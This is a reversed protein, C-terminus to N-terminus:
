IDTIATGGLQIISDRSVGAGSPARGSRDMYVSDWPDQDYRPNRTTGANISRSVGKYTPIIRSPGGLYDTIIPAASGSSKAVRSVQKYSPTDRAIYQTYYDGVGLWPNASPAATNAHRVAANGADTRLEVLAERTINGEGQKLSKYQLVEKLAEHSPRIHNAVQNIGRYTNPAPPASKIIMAHDSASFDGETRTSALAKAVDASIIATKKAQAESRLVSEMNQDGVANQRAMLMQTLLVSNTKRTSSIDGDGHIEATAMDTRTNRRSQQGSKCIRGYKAIQLDSDLTTTRYEHTDRIMKGVLVAPSRAQGFQTGMRDDGAEEKEVCEVTSTDGFTPALTPTRGDITRSFVKLRGRLDTYARVKAEQVQGENWGGGTISATDDPDFRQLRSRAENQDRFKNLDPDTTTGRQDGETFGLFMEPHGYESDGRHGTQRLQIMGSSANVGGRPREWEFAPADPRRDVLTGRAYNNYSQEYDEGATEEFKAMLMEYPMDGYTDSRSTTADIAGPQVFVYDNEARGLPLGGNHQSNQGFYGTQSPPYKDTM